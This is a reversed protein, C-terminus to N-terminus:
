AAKSKSHRIKFGCERHNPASRIAFEGKHIKAERLRITAPAAHEILDAKSGDIPLFIRINLTGVGFELSNLCLWDGGNWNRLLIVSDWRFSTLAEMEEEQAGIVLADEDLRIALRGAVYHPLLMDRAGMSAGRSKYRAYLRVLPEAILDDLSRMHLANTM